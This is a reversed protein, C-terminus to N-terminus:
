LHFDHRLWLFPTRGRCDVIVDPGPNTSTADHQSQSLLLQGLHDANCALLGMFVLAADVPHRGPPQELDCPGQARRDAVEVFSDALFPRPLDGRVLPHQELNGPIEGLDAVLFVLFRDTLEGAGQRASLCTLEKERDQHVEVVVPPAQATVPGAQHDPHFTLELALKM